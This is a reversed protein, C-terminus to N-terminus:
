TYTSYSYVKTFVHALMEVHQNVNEEIANISKLAILIFSHRLDISSDDWTLANM